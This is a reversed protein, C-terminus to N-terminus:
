LRPLGGEVWVTRRVPSAWVPTSQPLPLALISGDDELLLDMAVLADVATRLPAQSLGTRDRLREWALPEEAAVLVLARDGDILAARPSDPTRTDVIQVFGPGRRQTLRAGGAFAECWRVLAQYLEGIIPTGYASPYSGEFLYAVQTLDVLDPPFLFDYLRSPALNDIDYQDPAAFYPSHRVLDTQILYGPPPLHHLRPLREVMPRYDAVTEGPLAYLINYTPDIRSTTCAKLFGVNDLLTSGKDMLQLLRTDLSEIGPQATTVGAAALRHANRLSLQTRLEAFLTLDTHQVASTLAGAARPPILTDTVMFDLIWSEAALAEIERRIRAPSKSRYTLEGPLLGCFACIRHAVAWWCGRSLEIPLQLHASLTDPRDDLWDRYSPIPLTDLEELRHAPGARLVGRGGPGATTPLPPRRGDLLAEFLPAAIRDAEGDVVWDVFPFAEVLAEGCAGEVQAGGLVVPCDPWRAKVRSAVALAALLQDHTCSMGVAAPREGDDTCLSSVADDLWAPLGREVARVREWDPPVPRTLDSWVSELHTLYDPVGSGFLARAFLWEGLFRASRHAILDYTEAGIARALRLGFPHVRAPIQHERLLAQVLGLQISPRELGAWPLHILAVTRESM